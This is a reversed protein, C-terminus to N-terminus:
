MALDPSSPTSAAASTSALREAHRILAESAEKQMVGRGLAASGHHSLLAARFKADAEETVCVKRQRQAM